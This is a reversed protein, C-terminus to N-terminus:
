ASCSCSLHQTQSCKVYAGKAGAAAAGEACRDSSCSTGHWAASGQTCVQPELKDATILLSPFRPLQATLMRARRKMAELMNAFGNVRSAALGGAAGGLGLARLWAGDVELVQQPSLGSLAAVLVGALGATVDSDSAATFRVGGAADLSAHVWAQLSHAPSPTLPQM